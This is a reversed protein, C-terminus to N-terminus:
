TRNAPPAAAAGYVLAGVAAIFANADADNADWTMVVVVRPGAPTFIIGADHSLGALNGTKHAVVVSGPLAAPLRDNIRQRELRALMRSSAAASVLQRKALRTFFTGVSRPTATTNGREDLTVDFDPMGERELLADINQGGLLHWLALASGNDSITIMSELAQDIPLATGAEYSSGEDTVDETQITVTRTYSLSGADVRREAEALVGLKYLSATVVPSDPNHSYLPTSSAADGIWVGAGGRFEAILGDLRRVADAPLAAARAGSAAGFPVRLAGFPVTQGVTIVAIAVACAAVAVCAGSILPGSSRRRDPLSEV